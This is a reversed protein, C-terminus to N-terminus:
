QAEDIIRIRVAAPGPVPCAAECLGCGTCLSADVTPVLHRDGWPLSLGSERLSIAELPCAAFCALCAKKEGHALCRSPDLVAEGIKAKQKESLTLRRIAGSPCVDGCAKCDYRCGGRRPDLVPTMLWSDPKLSEVLTHTPCVRVCAGCRLCLTKLDPEAVTEPPRLVPEHANLIRERPLLTLAAVGAGGSLLYRRKSGDFAGISPKSFREFRLADAPCIEECSKCQICEMENFDGPNPGIAGSPCRAICLGCDTCSAFLRRKVFSFRAVAALIAGLPCLVRCFARPGMVGHLVLFLLLIMLIVTGSGPMAWPNALLRSAWNMPDFLWGLSLGGFSLLLALITLQYKVSRGRRRQTKKGIATDLIDSLTGMPCAWGCFVRGFLLTVALLVLGLVMSVGLVFSFPSLGSGALLFVDGRFFIEGPFFIEAKWIFACFLLLFAAQTMRRSATM